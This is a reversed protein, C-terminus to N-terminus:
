AAPPTDPVQRGEHDIHYNDRYILQSIPVLEYGADKLGTIVADLAAPTYKAGNHMLIISGNGLHKHDLITRVISDAGYDKWDLSDVDWQVPYYGMDRSVTVVQDDYDGYPPRFLTMEQGTLAKVQDHVQALERRIEEASLQSMNKHNQSHNGLDHGQSAIYKVDEPYKEVWSGTMFFTVKGQHKALIDMIQATDENGWAADFSLAVQPKETQVCYIPLQRKGALHNASGSARFISMSNVTLAVQGQEYFTLAAGMALFVVAMWFLINESLRHKLKM